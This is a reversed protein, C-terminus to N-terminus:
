KTIPRRTPKWSIPISRKSLKSAPFSPQRQLRHFSWAIGSFQHLQTMILDFNISRLCHMVISRKYLKLDSTFFAVCNFVFSMVSLWFIKGTSVPYKSSLLCTAKAWLFLLRQTYNASNRFLLQCQDIFLARINKAQKKIAPKLFSLRWHTRVNKCAGSWMNAWLFTDGRCNKAWKFSHSAIVEENAVHAVHLLSFYIAKNWTKRTLRSHYNLDWLSAFFPAFNLALINQMKLPKSNGM